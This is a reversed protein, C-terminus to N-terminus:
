YVALYITQVAAKNINVRLLIKRVHTETVSLGTRQFRPLSQLQSMKSTILTLMLIDLEDTAANM